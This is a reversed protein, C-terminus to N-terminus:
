MLSKQISKIAEQFRKADCDQVCAHYDIAGYEDHWTISFSANESDHPWHLRFFGAKDVIKCEWSRRSIIGDFFDHAANLNKGWSIVEHFLVVSRGCVAPLRLCIKVGLDNEDRIIRLDLFSNGDESLNLRPM